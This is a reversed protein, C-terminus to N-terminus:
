NPSSGILPIFRCLYCTSSDPFLTTLFSCWTAATNVWETEITPSAGRISLIIDGALALKLLTRAFYKHEDDTAYAKLDELFEPFTNRTQLAAIYSSFGTAFRRYRILDRIEAFGKFPTYNLTNRQDSEDTPETIYARRAVLEFAGHSVAYRDYIGYYRKWPAVHHPTRGLHRTTFGYIHNRFDIPLVHVAIDSDLHLM